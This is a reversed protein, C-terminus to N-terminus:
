CILPFFDAVDSLIIKILLFCILFKYYRENKYVFYTIYQEIYYVYYCSVDKIVMVFFFM